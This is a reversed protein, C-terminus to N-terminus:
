ESLVWDPLLVRVGTRSAPTSSSWRKPHYLEVSGPNHPDFVRAYIGDNHGDGSATIFWDYLYPVDIQYWSQNFDGNGTVRVRGTAVQIPADKYNTIWMTVDVYFPPDAPVPLNSVRVSGIYNRPVANAASCLLLVLLVSIARAM